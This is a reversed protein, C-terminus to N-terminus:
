PTAPPRVQLGREWRALVRRWRLRLLYLVEVLLGVLVGIAFGVLLEESVRFDAAVAAPCDCQM